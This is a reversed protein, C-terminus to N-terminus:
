ITEAHQLERLERVKPVPPRGGFLSPHMDMRLPVRCRVTAHVTRARSQAHQDVLSLAADVDARLQMAHVENQSQLDKEFRAM